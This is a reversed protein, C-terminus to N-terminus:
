SPAKTRVGAGRARRALWGRLARALAAASRPRGRPRKRLCSLCIKELDEGVCPNLASPPAPAEQLVRALTERATAGEFPPEDRGAGLGYVDAAQTLRTAGAAQEPPMYCPTGLVAGTHTLRPSATAGETARVAALGFDALKPSGDAALLVNSPKLDRHLVGRD